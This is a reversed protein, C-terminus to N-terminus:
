DQYGGALILHIPNQDSFHSWTATYAVVLPVMATNIFIYDITTNTGRGKFSPIDDKGCPANPHSLGFEALTDELFGGQQSHEFHTDSYNGPGVSDTVHYNM